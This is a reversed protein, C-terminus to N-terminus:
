NRGKHIKSEREHVCVNLHLRNWWQSLHRPTHPPCACQWKDINSVRIWLWVCVCVGVFVWEDWLRAHYFYVEKGLFLLFVASSQFKKKRENGVPALRDENSRGDLQPQHSFSRGFVQSLSSLFTGQESDVWGLKYKVPQWCGNTVWVLAPLMM